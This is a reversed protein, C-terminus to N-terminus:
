QLRVPRATDRWGDKHEEMSKIQSDAMGATIVIDTAKGEDSRSIAVLAGGKGAGAKGAFMRVASDPENVVMVAKVGQEKARADYFAAVKEISDATEFVVLGGKSSNAADALQTRVRAGPYAPAFAPLETSLELSEGASASEVTAGDSSTIFATKGDTQVVAKPEDKCAALLLAGGLAMVAVSQVRFPSRSLM